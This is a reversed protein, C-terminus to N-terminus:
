DASESIEYAVRLDYMFQMAPKNWRQRDEDTAKRRLSPYKKCLKTLQSKVPTYSQLKEDDYSGLASRPCESIRYVM